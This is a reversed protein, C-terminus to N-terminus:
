RGCVPVTRYPPDYYVECYCYYARCWSLCAYYCNWSAAPHMDGLGDKFCATGPLIDPHVIGHDACLCGCALSLDTEIIDNYLENVQEESLNEIEDFNM